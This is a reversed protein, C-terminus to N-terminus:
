GGDAPRTLLHRLDAKRVKGAATRPLTGVILLRAPLKHRALGAATGRERLSELTPVEEGPVVVACVIEGWTQDPAACIAIERIGAAGALAEEVERASINEGGRIIIDKVRDTVVLYGDPDFRALDGTRFWTGDLYADANLAPDRYGVFQRPGRAVIEGESGPAVDAGSEDVLRVENGPAVRGDTLRRKDPPDDPGGSSIAPHETSGYTRWATIGAAEARAVLGPPVAAAGVLFRQLTSIDRGSREAEDLLTTLFFPTGASATIQHTEILEAAAAPSWSDMMVTLGGAVLPRLVALLSAIHGAPFTMLSRTVDGAPAAATLGFLLSEHSHQVGKPAATSGSTYLLVAVSAPAPRAPEPRPGAPLADLALAGHPADGGLIILRDLGLAQRQGAISSAVEAGRWRRAAVVTRAGTEALVHALEGPTAAATLLVPVAGLAWLAVAAETSAPGVAAQLVVVEGPRVGARYLSGAVDLAREHLTALRVATAGGHRVFILEDDPHQQAGAAIAEGVTLDQYWGAARWRARLAEREQGPELTTLPM